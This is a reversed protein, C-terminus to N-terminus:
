VGHNKMKENLTADLTDAEAPENVALRTFQAEGAPDAVGFFAVDLDDCGASELIKGLKAGAQTLAWAPCANVADM